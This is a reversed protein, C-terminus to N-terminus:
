RCKRMALQANALIVTFSGAWLLKELAQWRTMLSAPMGGARLCLRPISFLPGCKKSVYCRAYVCTENAPEPAVCGECCIGSECPIRFRPTTCFESATKRCPLQGFEAARCSPTLPVDRLNSVSRSCLQKLAVASAQCGSTMKFISGSLILLAANRECVM